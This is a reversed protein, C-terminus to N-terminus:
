FLRSGNGTDDLPHPGVRKIDNWVVACSHFPLGLLIVLFFYPDTRFCVVVLPAWAIPGVIGRNQLSTVASRPWESCGYLATRPSLSSLPLGTWLSIRAVGSFIQILRSEGWCRVCSSASRTSTSRCSLCICGKHTEGEGWGGGKAM